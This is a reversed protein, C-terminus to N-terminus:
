SNEMVKLVMNEVARGLKLGRVKCYEKLKKHTEESVVVVHGRELKQKETNM